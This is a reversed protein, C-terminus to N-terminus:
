RPRRQALYLVTQYPRVIVGDFHEWVVREVDDLLEGRLDDELAMWPPVTSYFDRIGAADHRGEWRFIEQRVPGFAVVAEIERSRAEADLVYHLPVTEADILNPARAELIPRLAEFFPDAREPDVFLTWWLALWGEDRLAAACKALGPGPDVWHFATASVVLDFGAEPLEADEFGSVIVRLDPARERLRDALRGGPEVATVRARRDLLALTAQGTGPGIELVRSGAGLGCRDELLDFLESPYDPRGREYTRPASDFELGEARDGPGEDRAGVM